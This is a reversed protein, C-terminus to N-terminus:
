EYADDDELLFETGVLQKRAISLTERLHINEENLERALDNQKGAEEEAESIRPEWKTKEKLDLARHHRLNRIAHQMNDIVSDRQAITDESKRLSERIGCLKDLIITRDIELYSVRRELEAKTVTQEAM